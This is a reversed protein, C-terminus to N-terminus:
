YIRPQLRVMTSNLSKLVFEMFVEKKARQLRVMTSNLRQEIIQRLAAKQETTISGYHFQSARSLIIKTGLKNLQLRVMTSNLSESDKLEKDSEIFLTTISGYHFQSLKRKPKM